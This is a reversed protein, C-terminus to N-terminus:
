DVPRPSANAICIQRHCVVAQLCTWSRVQWEEVCREGIQVKQMLHSDPHGFQEREQGHGGDVGWVQLQMQLYLAEGQSRAIYIGEKSLFQLSAHTSEARASVQRSKVQLMMQFM